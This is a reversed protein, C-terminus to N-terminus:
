STIPEDVVATMLGRVANGFRIEVADILEAPHVIGEVATGDHLMKARLVGALAGCALSPTVFQEDEAYRVFLTTRAGDAIEGRDNLVLGEFARQGRAQRLATDYPVRRTTKYRLLPDNARVTATTVVVRAPTPAHDVDRVTVVTQGTAHLTIRAIRTLTQIARNVGTDSAAAATAAVSTEPRTRKNKGLAARVFEAHLKSADYPLGLRDASDCMRALHAAVDKQPAGVRLTEFIALPKGDLFARRKVFIEAWEASADSDAVIGGGIRLTGLRTRRDLDLTRIAVNFAGHRGPELAGIAGMAIGRPERELAAIERMAALKPAGTISGCPFTARVIEGLGVGARLTGAITSTMTAFTPYREIAFLREAAVRHCIRHLDNRLLDVIMVHEARNKASGLGAIADPATTGKMPRTEIRDGALDLFLEPSLSVFARDGDEVLAAHAIGARAVLAEFLARRDGDWAFGFPVTLNIQYADGARLTAAIRALEDDYRQRSWLAVPPALEFADNATRMGPESPASVTARSPPVSHRRAAAYIGFAALPLTTDRPVVSDGIAAGALAAGLEYTAYGAISLGAALAADLMAFATDADDGHEIRVVSSPDEFVIRAGPPALEVRM